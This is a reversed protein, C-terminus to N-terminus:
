EGFESCSNLMLMRDVNRQSLVEIMGFYIENMVATHGYPNGFQVTAGSGLRIESARIPETYGIVVQRLAETEDRYILRDPTSMGDSEAM